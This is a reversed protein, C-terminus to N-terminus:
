AIRINVLRTILMGPAREHRGWRATENSRNWWDIWFVADDDARGWFGKSNHQANYNQISAM